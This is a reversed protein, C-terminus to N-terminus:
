RGLSAPPATGLRAGVVADAARASPPNSTVAELFPERALAYLSADTTATVTATRPVDHLLAIEGFSDGPGLSRTPNGDVVVDLRGEAVVYFRDGPEGQTIVNTGAAVRVTELQSALRELAPGPLPALLPVRELLELEPGPARATADIAVLRRWTVAALVPLVAGTVGLSWRIGVWDVLLPAILAGLGMTAVLLAELVGFVRGVVEPPATRQLLTLGAVDVLTNGLGVVGLAVLAVPMNPWGGILALPAGWLVIGLGFDAALRRRGVLGFALAAGVLGGVGSAANLYGVAGEGWNRRPDLATVVILVGLAGAVLTQAAYLSVVVRLGREVAITHFGEAAERLFRGRRVELQVAPKPRERRGISAVLLGGWLFTGAAVFLVVGADSVVLLLGGLAPGAFSGLSDITSRAVNAATLEAPTRALEPLAAAEAPLFATGLISTIGALAYVLGPPGGVEIVVGASGITGVRALSAAAMVAVRPLRDALTSTFPASIAAPITRILTVLGVAKAGGQQYAYVALAVSYAWQGMVSGAGALQLRRLAPNSFAGRFAAASEILRVRVINM